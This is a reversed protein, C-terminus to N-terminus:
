ILVKMKPPARGYLVNFDRVWHFLASGCGTEGGFKTFEILYVKDIVVVDIVISISKNSLADLCKPIFELIMDRHKCLTNPGHITSSMWDYQSIGSVKGKYVFVRYENDLSIADDFDSLYLTTIQIGLSTIWGHVRDDEVIARVIELGGFYPGTHGSRKMSCEELRAFIKTGQKNHELITADIRKALTQVEENNLFTDRLKRFYAIKALRMLEELVHTEIVIMAWPSSRMLKSTNNSLWTSVGNYKNKTLETFPSHFNTNVDDNNTMFEIEM